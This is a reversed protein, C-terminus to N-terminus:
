RARRLPITKGLRADAAAVDLARAIGQDRDPATHQYIMAARTSSQGLRGMTDKLTAGAQVAATSAAHRTDHFHTGQLGIKSTARAFTATWNSRALPRGSQTAFVLAADGPLVYEEMHQTLVPGLFAPLAVTRFGAETKPDSVLWRRQVRRIGKVVRFTPLERTLQVDARTLATLEGFRLGSYAASLV